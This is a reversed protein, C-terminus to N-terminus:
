NEIMDRAIEVARRKTQGPDSYRYRDWTAVAMWEDGYGFDAVYVDVEREGDTVTYNGASHRITRIKM